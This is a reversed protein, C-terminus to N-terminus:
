GDILAKYEAETFSRTVTRQKKSKWSIPTSGLYVLYGVVQPNEITLVALGILMQSVM